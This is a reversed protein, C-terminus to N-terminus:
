VSVYMKREHMKLAIVVWLTVGIVNSLLVGWHKTMSNATLYLSFPMYSGLLEHGMYLVISNKGAERM